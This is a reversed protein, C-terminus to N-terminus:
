KKKKRNVLKVVLMIVLVLVIFSILLSLWMGMFYQKFIVIFIVAFLIITAVENMMRLKISTTIFKGAKIRRICRWSWYHYLALAGVFVLKIHFWPERLIYFTIDGRTNIMMLTGTILMIIGAPVTIIDWLRSIMYIYQKRLIERELEPKENTDIFYVFLRILYFIGAFYSVMFIIHIAKLAFYSPIDPIHM